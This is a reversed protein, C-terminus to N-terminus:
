LRKPFFIVTGTLQHVSNQWPQGALRLERLSRLNTGV